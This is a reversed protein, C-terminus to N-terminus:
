VWADLMSHGLLGVDFRKRPNGGSRWWKECPPALRDWRAIWNPLSSKWPPDMGVQGIGHLGRVCAEGLAPSPM